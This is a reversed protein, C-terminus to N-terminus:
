VQYAFTLYKVSHVGVSKLTKACEKLTAGTTIIDDVLLIKKGSLNHHPNASYSNLINELREKKSKQGQSETYKSKTLDRYSVEKKWIKGLHKAILGAQNYRRKLLRFFHIPVPIILDCEKFFEADVKSMWYAMKKAIYTQDGYKLRMLWEKSFENYFFASRGSIVSKGAQCDACDEDISIEYPVGCKKCYYIVPTLKNWCEHCLIFDNTVETGCLCRPPILFDVIKHTIQSLMRVNVLTGKEATYCRFFDLM